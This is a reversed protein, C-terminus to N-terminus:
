CPIRRRRGGVTDFPLHSIPRQPIIAASGSLGRFAARGQRRLQELGTEIARMEAALRGHDREQEPTWLLMSPSPTASTFHSYLGSEDINNFFAFLSYYDRQTIPDFRHDHCRACSVMGNESLRKEFFLYQGLHAAAPDDAVRNTPDPPIPPLPSLKLIQAIEEPTFASVPSAAQTSDLFGVLTCFMVFVLRRNM